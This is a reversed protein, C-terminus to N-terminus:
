SDVKPSQCYVAFLLQSGAHMFGIKAASKFYRMKIDNQLGALGYM